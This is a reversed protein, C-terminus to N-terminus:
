TETAGGPVAGTRGGVGTAIEHARLPGSAERSLPPTTGAAGEVVGTVIEDLVQEGSRTPTWGLERRIRETDLLPTQLIIDVWGPDAPQLRLRWTLDAAARLLGGPLRVPRAGLVRGLAAPDIVPETAVNYAGRADTTVALRFAEACDASHVVQFRLLPLDPVVPLAARLLRNPVFPGLFLRRIETAAARQLVLAPRLRVVRSAPHEAEYVDLLREVYAKARAYASSPIGDTPWSEDVREKPGPRYAAVSSAHVVTPVGVADCAQLLRESGIVNARWLVHEDHSPQILWALHVVADAGQLAGTLDDVALDAAVWTVGDGTPEPARRAIGVIEDVTPDARLASVLQTGINGSAGTVVVKV